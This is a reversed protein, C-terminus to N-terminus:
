LLFVTPMPIDSLAALLALWMCKVEKSRSYMDKLAILLQTRMAHWLTYVHWRFNQWYLDKFTLTVKVKVM